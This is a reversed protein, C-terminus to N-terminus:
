AFSVLVTSVALPELDVGLRAGDLALVAGLHEVPDSRRAAKPTKSFTVVPRAKERSLNQLRLTM